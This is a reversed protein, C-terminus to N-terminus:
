EWIPTYQKILAQEAFVIWVPVIALVRYWFDGILLNNVHEVSKAHETLRNRLAPHNVDLKEGGMRSGKPIAKGVYIPQYETM